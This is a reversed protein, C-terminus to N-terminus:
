NRALNRLAPARDVHQRKAIGFQVFVNRRAHGELCATSVSLRISQQRNWQGTVDPCRRPELDFHNFYYLGIRPPQGLRKVVRVVYGAEFIDFRSISLAANGSRGLDPIRALVRVHGDGYSYRARVVDIRPPADGVRDYTIRTAGSAPQSSLAVLGAVLAAAIKKRM